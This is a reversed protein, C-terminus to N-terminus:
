LVFFTKKLITKSLHLECVMYNVWKLHVIWHNKINECLQAIM